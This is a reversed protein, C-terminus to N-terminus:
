RAGSRGPGGSQIAHLVRELAPPEPVDKFGELRRFIEAAARHFGDPLGSAAFTDAIEEMEPAWRWAKASGGVARKRGSAALEPQSLAWEGALPGAVGEADAMALIGALLAATGKTYAAYAMKLASAAGPGGGIAVADLPGGGFLGAVTSAGDGSLYLRTSGPRRPPLGIIGGDVFGEAGGSLAADAVTRATSPSIANADVFVGAFGAAAVNEAVELAFEPPCISLVVRSKGALEELSGVDELGAKRARECTARSRGASAWVVRRGVGALSAGVAAGMAGPHLLGIAETM